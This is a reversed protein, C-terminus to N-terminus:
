RKPKWLSDIYAGIIMGILIIILLYLWIIVPTDGGLNITPIKCMISSPIKCQLFSIGINKMLLFITIIIGGIITGEKNVVLWRKIKQYLTM